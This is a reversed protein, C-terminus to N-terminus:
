IIVCQTQKLHYVPDISQTKPLNERNTRKTHWQRWNSQRMENPTWHNRATSYSNFSYHSILLLSCTTSATNMVSTDKRENRTVVAHHQCYDTIGLQSPLQRQNFNKKIEGDVILRYVDSHYQSNFDGTLIIPLPENTKSHCAFRDLEALLIQTQACRIDSRRPNYLLHTTCVCFENPQANTQLAFTAIIAM